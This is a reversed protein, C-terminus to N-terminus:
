RRLWQLIADNGERGIRDARRTHLREAVKAADLKESKIRRYLKESWGLETWRSKAARWAVKDRKKLFQDRASSLARADKRRGQAKLDKIRRTTDSEWRGLSAGAPLGGGLNKLLTGWESDQPQPLSLGGSAPQDEATPTRAALEVNGSLAKRLADQLM